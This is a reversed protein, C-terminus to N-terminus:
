AAAGSQDRVRPRAHDRLRAPLHSTVARVRPRWWSSTLTALDRRVSSATPKANLKSDLTADRLAEVMMNILRPAEHVDLPTSAVCIGSRWQSVIITRTEPHWSARLYDTQNRLDPLQVFNKARSVRATHLPTPRSDVSQAASNTDDRMGESTLCGPALAPGLPPIPGFGHGCRAGSACRACQCQGCAGSTILAPPRPDVPVTRCRSTVRVDPCSGM